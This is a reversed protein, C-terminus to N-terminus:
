GNINANRNVISALKQASQESDCEFCDDHYAEWPAKNGFVAYYKFSGDDQQDSHVIVKNVTINKRTVAVSMSNLEDNTFKM